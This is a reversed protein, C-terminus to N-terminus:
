HDCWAKMLGATVTALSPKPTLDPDKLDYDVLGDMINYQVMHSTTDVSVNWDLTPPEVQFNVRLTDNLELGYELKESKKTCASFILAFAVLPLTIRSFGM